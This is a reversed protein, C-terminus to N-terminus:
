SARSCERPEGTEGAPEWFKGFNPGYDYSGPSLGFGAGAAEM